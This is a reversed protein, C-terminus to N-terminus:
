DFHSDEGLKPTFIFLRQTAVVLCSPVHHCGSPYIIRRDAGMYDLFKKRDGGPHCSFMNPWRSDGWALVKMKWSADQCHFTVHWSSVGCFKCSFLVIMIKLYSICRWEQKKKKMTMSTKPAECPHKRLHHYGGLDDIKILTEMYVFGNQPVVM